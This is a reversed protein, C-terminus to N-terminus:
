YREKQRYYPKTKKKQTIPQSTFVSYDDWFVLDETYPVRPTSFNEYTIEMDPYQELLYEIRLKTWKSISDKSSVVLLKFPKGEETM